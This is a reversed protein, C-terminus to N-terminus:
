NENINNNDNEIIDNNEDNININDNILIM